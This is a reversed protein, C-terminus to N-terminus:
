YNECLRKILPKMYGGRDKWSIWQSRDEETLDTLTMEGKGMAIYFNQIQIIQTMSTNCNIKEYGINSFVTKNWGVPEVYDTLTYYYILNDVRKIRTFDIYVTDFDSGAFKTWNWEAYSTSIFMFTFLLVIFRM